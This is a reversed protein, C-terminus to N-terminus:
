RQGDHFIIILSGDAKEFCEFPGSPVPRAFEGWNWFKPFLLAAIKRQTVNLILGCAIETFLNWQPEYTCRETYCSHRLDGSVAERVLGAAISHQLDALLTDFHITRAPHLIESRM